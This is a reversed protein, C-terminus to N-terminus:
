TPRSSPASRGSTRGTARFCTVRIGAPQSDGCPHHAQRLRRSDNDLARFLVERNFLYIGMSALFYEQDGAIGLRDVSTKDLVLSDLLEPTRRNKWAGCSASSPMRRCSGWRHRRTGASWSPPCRSTRTRRSTSSWSFERFDMRYLQDGSLILAWDYTGTASISSIRESPTRRARTGRRTPALRSRPWSRSSARRSTTSSSRAM